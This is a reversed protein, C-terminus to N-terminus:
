LSFKVAMTCFIFQKYTFVALKISYHFTKGYVIFSGSENGGFMFGALGFSVLHYKTTFFAVM